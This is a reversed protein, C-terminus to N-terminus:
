HPIASKMEDIRVHAREINKDHRTLTSKIWAMDNRLVIVTLFTTFIGTVGGTILAVLILTLIETDM